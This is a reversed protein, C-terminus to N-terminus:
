TKEARQKGLKKVAMKNGGEDEMNYPNFVCELCFREHWNKQQEPRICKESTCYKLYHELAVVEHWTLEGTSTQPRNIKYLVKAM